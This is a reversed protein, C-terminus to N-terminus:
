TLLKRSVSNILIPLGTPKAFVAIVSPFPASGPAGVFRLRGKVFQLEAAHPLVVDQFWVTETRAPLLMVVRKARGSDVERWAKYVWPKVCHGAAINANTQRGYPPNVFVNKARWMQKLGNDWETFFRESVNNHRTACPDLTFLGFLDELVQIFEPPTGWETAGSSFMAEDVM